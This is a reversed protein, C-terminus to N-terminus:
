YIIERHAVGKLTEGKSAEEKSATRSSVEKKSAQQKELCVFAFSSSEWFLFEFCCLEFSAVKLFSAKM